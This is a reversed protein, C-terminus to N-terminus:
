KCQRVWTPLRYRNFILVAQVVVGSAAQFRDEMKEVSDIIVIPTLQENPTL